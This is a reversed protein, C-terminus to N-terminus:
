SFYNRCYTFLDMTRFNGRPLILPLTMESIDGKFELLTPASFQCIPLNRFEAYFHDGGGVERQKKERVCLSIQLYPNPYTIFVSIFIPIPIPAPFSLFQSLFAFLPPLSPLSFKLFSVWSFDM